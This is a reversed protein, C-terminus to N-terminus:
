QATPKSMSRLQSGDTLDGFVTFVAARGAEFAARLLDGDSAIGGAKPSDPAPRIPFIAPHGERLLV